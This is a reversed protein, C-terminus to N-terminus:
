KLTTQTIHIISIVMTLSSRTHTHTHTHIQSKRQEGIRKTEINKMIEKERENERESM